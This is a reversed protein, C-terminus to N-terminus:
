LMRVRFDTFEGTPPLWECKVERVEASPSGRYLFDLMQRLVSEEGEAVVRVTGDPQNAVWGVVQLRHAEHMTYRRFFVGQVLGKVTADM